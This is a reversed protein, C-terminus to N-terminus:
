FQSGKQNLELRSSLFYIMHYYGFCKLKRVYGHIESSVEVTLLPSCTNYSYLFAIMIVVVSFTNFQKGRM